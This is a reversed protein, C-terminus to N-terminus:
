RDRYLWQMIAPMLVFDGLVGLALISSSIVAFLSIIGIQSFGLMAFAGILVLSTALMAHGSTQLAHQSSQAATQGSARATQFNNLFHITDDVIVGIILSGIMITIMDLQAGAASIAALVLLIPVVNPLMALTATPLSRFFLAMMTLVMLMSAVFSMAAGSIIVDLTHRLIPLFGTAEAVVGDHRRLVDDVLRKPTDYEMAWARSTALTMRAYRYDGSVLAHFADPMGIQFFRLDRWVLDDANSFEAYDLSRGDMARSIDELYTQVSSVSSFVTAAEGASFDEAIDRLLTIFESKRVGGPAGSDIVLEFPSAAAFNQDLLKFGRIETWEDPVWALTDHNLRLSSLSYIAMGGALMTALIIKGAHRGALAVCFVATRDILERRGFLVTSAAVPMPSWSLALAAIAFTFLCALLTAIGAFLGFSSLAQIGVLMFSFLGAATTLSTMLVPRATETLAASFAQRPTNKLEIHRSYANLVHVADAVGLGVILPPMIILTLQLPQGVLAMIAFTVVATTIIIALPLVVAMPSRFLLWILLMGVVLSAVGLVLLERVFARQIAADAAAEGTLELSFDEAQHQALLPRIADVLEAYGVAGMPVTKDGQRLTSNLQLVILTFNRASNILVNRYRESSLVEQQWALWQEDTEPWPNLLGSIVTRQDRRYLRPANLLSTVRRVHPAEKELEKHLDRLRQLTQPALVDAASVTIVAYADNGFRETFSQYSVFEPSDLGLLSGVSTDLELRPLQSVAALLLLALLTASTRPRDYLWLAFTALRRGILDTLRM